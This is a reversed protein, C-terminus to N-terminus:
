VEGTDDTIVASACLAPGANQEDLWRGYVALGAHFRDVYEVLNPVGLSQAALRLSAGTSQGAREMRRAARLTGPGGKWLAAQWTPQWDHRDSYREQYRLFAAIAAEGDGHLKSTGADGLGADIGALRGMQLLGRFQSRPRHAEPDGLSEVHILALVTADSYRAASLGAAERCRALVPQWRTVDPHPRRITM